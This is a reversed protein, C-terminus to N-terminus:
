SQTPTANRRRPQILSSKTQVIASITVPTIMNTVAHYAIERSEPVIPRHWAENAGESQKGQGRCERTAARIGGRRRRFGRRCFGGRSFYPDHRGRLRPNRAGDAHRARE